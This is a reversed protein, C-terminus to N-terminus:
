EPVDAVAVINGRFYKAYNEWSFAVQYFAMPDPKYFSVVVMYALPMLFLVALVGFATVGLLRPVLLSLWNSKM